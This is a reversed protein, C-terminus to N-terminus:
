YLMALCAFVIMPILEPDGERVYTSVTPFMKEEVVMTMTIGDHDNLTVKSSGIIQNGDVLCDLDSAISAQRYISNFIPDEKTLKDPMTIVFTLKEVPYEFGCLLPLTLLLKYEDNVKAVKVAEPITFEFMLSYEGVSSGTIRSIDVLTATGVKTSSVNAGNMTIGKANAPLPFKLQPQASEMRLLVNMSVLCDGEATVTARIEMKSAASEARVPFVLVGALLVCITFLAFIRRM